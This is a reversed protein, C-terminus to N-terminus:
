PSLPAFPVGVKRMAKRGQEVDLVPNLVSDVDCSSVERVAQNPPLAVLAALPM